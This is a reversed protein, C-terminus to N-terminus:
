PWPFAFTPQNTYRRMTLTLRTGAGPALRVTFHRHDVAAEVPPTSPPPPPSHRGGTARGLLMGDTSEADGDEVAEARVREIQHEAYAGGQM